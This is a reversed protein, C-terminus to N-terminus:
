NKKKIFFSAKQLKKLSCFFSVFFSIGKLKKVDQNKAFFFIRILNKQYTKKQERFVLLFSTKKFFISFWFHGEYWLYSRRTTMEEGEKPESSIRIWKWVRRRLENQSM